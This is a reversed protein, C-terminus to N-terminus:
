AFELLRGPQGHGLAVQGDQAVPMALVDVEGAKWGGEVVEVVIGLLQAVERGVRGV